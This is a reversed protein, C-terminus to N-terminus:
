CKLAVYTYPSSKKSLLLWGNSKTFMANLAIIVQTNLFERCLPRPHTSNKLPFLYALIFYFSSMKEEFMLTKYNMKDKRREIKTRERKHTATCEKPKLKYVKDWCVPPMWCFYFSICIWVGQM